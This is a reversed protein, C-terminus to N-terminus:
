DESLRIQGFDKPLKKWPIEVEKKSYNIFNIVLTLDRDTFKGLNLEFFGNADSATGTTQGKVLIAAGPIPKDNKDVIQGRVKPETPPPATQAKVAPTTLAYSFLIIALTAFATKSALGLSNAFSPFTANM